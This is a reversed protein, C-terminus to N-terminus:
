LFEDNVLLPLPQALAAEPKLFKRIQVRVASFSLYLLYIRFLNRVFANFLILLARFKKMRKASQLLRTKVNSIISNAVAFLFNEAIQFNACL